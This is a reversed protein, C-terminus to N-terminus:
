SLYCEFRFDFEPVKRIRLIVKLQEVTVNPTTKLGLFLISRIRVAFMTSGVMESTVYGLRTSMVEMDSCLSLIFYYVDARPLASASSFAFYVCGYNM